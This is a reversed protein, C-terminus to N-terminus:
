AAAQPAARLVCTLLTDALIPKPAVDDFADLALEEVGATFALIPTHRKPGREGRIGRLASPGDMEPM